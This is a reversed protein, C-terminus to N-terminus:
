PSVFLISKAEPWLLLFFFFLESNPQYAAPSSAREHELTLDPRSLQTVQSPSTHIPNSTMTEAPQHLRLSAAM